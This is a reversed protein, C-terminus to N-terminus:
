GGIVRPVRFLGSDSDPANALAQDRTLSPETEDSRTSEFAGAHSMPPVDSLDLALLSDAYDLIQKLDHTLSRTEAESLSLRALRAIHEVTKSTVETM